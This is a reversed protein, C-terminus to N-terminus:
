SVGEGEQTSAIAKELLEQLNHFEKCRKCYIDVSGDDMIRGLFHGHKDRIRTGKKNGSIKKHEMVNGDFM